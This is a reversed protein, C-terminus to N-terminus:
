ALTILRVTDFVASRCQSPAPITDKPEAVPPTAPRPETHRSPEVKHDPGRGQKSGHLGFHSVPVNRRDGMESPLRCTSPNSFRGVWVPPLPFDTLCSVHAPHVICRGEAPAFANEPFVPILSLTPSESSLNSPYSECSVLALWFTEVGQLDLPGGQLDLAQGDRCSRFLYVLSGLFHRSFKSNCGPPLPPHGPTGPCSHVLVM